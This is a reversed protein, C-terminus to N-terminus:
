PNLIRNDEEKQKRSDCKVTRTKLSEHDTVQHRCEKTCRFNKISNSLKYSLHMITLLDKIIKVM